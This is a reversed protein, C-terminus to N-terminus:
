GEGRARPSPVPSALDGLHDALAQAFEEAHTIMWDHSGGPSIHLRSCPISGRLLEACRLPMTHDRRGWMLLTPVRLEAAVGVVDTRASYLVEQFFNRTHFIANYVIHHFASLTLRYELVADIARGAFVRVLSQSVDAGITDTLILHSILEPRDLALYIGVPGSNSHGIVPVRGVQLQDLLRGTWAAYERFTWPRTLRVGHDCGPFVPRYVRFRRGLERVARDYSRTLVLMSSLLVLPPGSGSEIVSARQGEITFCHERREDADM